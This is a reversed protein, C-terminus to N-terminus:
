RSGGSPALRSDSVTFHQAARGLPEFLAADTGTLWAQLGQALLAEFLAERRTADLHAAIEDLLLVPGLGPAHAAVLGAQALLMGVLLAKQEGTSCHEAPRGLPEHTVQLDSLHPGELTRGAAEDRGRGCALRRAFDLAAEEPAMGGALANEPYGVISLAARPFASGQKALALGLRRVTSLRCAALRVGETAIEQELASLWAPDRGDERLLANRERMARLYRASHRAHEAELSLTLRDLFRRRGASGELFVRDMAPTLWLVRLHAGFEAPRAAQGDIRAQRREGGDLGHGTGLDRAGDCARLKLAIAWARAPTGAQNPRSAMESFKAGRLGCGPAFLSVAELLNTKGAGNPGALVVPRSDVSLDLEEYSRFSALKLRAVTGARGHPWPAPAENQESRKFPVVTTM